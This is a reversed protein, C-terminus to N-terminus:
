KIKEVCEKFYPILNEYITNELKGIEIFNLSAGNICFRVGGQEKPGDNFVHGLHSDQNKSTTEIRHMNHSFDDYYNVCDIRIPKTFSPWGCGANYKNESSFLPEGSIKDIFLGCENLSNLSSSFPTETAKELLVKKSFDDINLKEIEESTLKDKSFLPKDAASLNIHCYGNPNKLLYNQHYEEALIFNNLKEVEIAVKKGEHQKEYIQLTLLACKRSYEDVFYIGTRYQRGIDGGQRNRSYPNILTLYREFIEAINIINEDYEIELTEAHDTEKINHYNTELTLGNAYGVNTNIIGKIKSFYAQMGWFCGGALYIKNM